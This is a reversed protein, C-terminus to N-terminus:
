RGPRSFGADVRRPTEPIIAPPRARFLADWLQVGMVMLLVRADPAQGARVQTLLREVGAPEFYGTARVRAPSLLDEAFDPLPDRLWGEVPAALPRKPRWQIDPPLVGELARRLVYKERIGRLKLSSPIGACLEVLEHDLFPVRAELGFAMSAADLTQNIFAPLRLRVDLRQLQRLRDRGDPEVAEAPGDRAEAAGLEQQIGASFIPHRRGGPPGILNAYREPGMSQPGLMLRRVFARRAPGFPALLAARRLPRPLAGLPRSLRDILYWRYGGLIEDAGEGTLVVKVRRAAAEALSMRLLDLLGASPTETHWLAQPYRELIRRDCRVRENPVEHGPVRDLTRPGRAEDYAAEDFALTFTPLPGTMRRALSVVASSDVGGSLWAGVPVDAQLHLRVTEELKDRLREAWAVAGGSPQPETAAGYRWYARVTVQGGEYLLWHGADLRRVAQLLTRPDPVFGLTFLEDLARVDLTRAELGAALIAKIESGFYLGDSTLAYHLPKIGLRDRVLWLRRRAADWLALAFMGRLRRVADVGLEEYLHAIVEVDSRSRFRHGKASLEARLERHNYIEGNCVVAVTGDESAIPQDGTHLDVVALRRIGLSIGPGVHAGHGDPGRHRLVAAMDEALAADGPRRPDAWAVGAIGCM